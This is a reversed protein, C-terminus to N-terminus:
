WPQTLPADQMRPVRRGYAMGFCRAVCPHPARESLFSHDTISATGAATDPDLSLRTRRAHRAHCQAPLFVQRRPAVRVIDIGPLWPFRTEPDAAAAVFSAAPARAARDCGKGSGVSRDCQEHSAPVGFASWFAPSSFGM